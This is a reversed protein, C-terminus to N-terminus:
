NVSGLLAGSTLAHAGEVGGVGAGGVGTKVPENEEEERREALVASFGYSLHHALIERSLPTAKFFIGM